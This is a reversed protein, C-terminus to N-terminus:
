IKRRRLSSLAILPPMILIRFINYFAVKLLHESVDHSIIKSPTQELVWLLNEKVQLKNKKIQDFVKYDLVMWQSSYTGSNYFSFNDVWEEGTSSFFTASNVRMFNPIYKEEEKVSKYLNIDIVELTTETVMLKHNTIYFDDTSSLCGPYSSFTAVIDKLVGDYDKLHM